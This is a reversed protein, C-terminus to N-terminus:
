QSQSHLSEQLYTKILGIAVYHSDKFDFLKIRLTSFRTNFVLQNLAGRQKGVRRHYGMAVLRTTEHVRYLRRCSSKFKLFHKKELTRATKKQESFLKVTNPKTTNQTLLRKVTGSLSLRLLKKNKAKSTFNM